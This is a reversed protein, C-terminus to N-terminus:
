EEAMLKATVEMESLTIAVTREMRVVATLTICEGGGRGVRPHSRQGGTRVRWGAWKGGPM